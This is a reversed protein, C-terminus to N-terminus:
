SRATARGAGGAAVRRARPRLRRPLPRRGRARVGVARARAARGRSTGGAQRRALQLDVRRGGVVLARAAARDRGAAGGRAAVARARAGAGRAGSRGARARDPEPEALRRREHARGGRDPRATLLRPDLPLGPLRRHARRLGARRAALARDRPGLRADLSADAMVNLDHMEAASSPELLSEDPDCLFAGWRALDGVTSYLGSEGGKGGLELVPERRVSDSYPEVFYPLAAGDGPGWTTRELGLPGLLREQVHERFPMGTIRAVVIGLLAYALNSYHWAAMPPLVQEAEELGAAAGGRRSLELTEWIEGPPERQLGSAHALMRRLTLTGHTAEPLHKSLPDELDLKGADRLQLVSVATFTKTISAVAYQTDPSAEVGQEVDALGVAESWALESAASSPPASAPCGGPASRRSCSAGTASLRPCPSGARAPDARGRARHGRRRRRPAHGRAADDPAHDGLPRRGARGAAGAGRGPGLGLPASTSRSSTRRSRSSTSPCAPRSWGKPWGGRGRTTTPWGSSTTSSRTSARRRGRDGGPADRRRLPAEAAAGRGDAGALRRGARRAPLRPGELPLAHRHRVPTRDGGRPRRARGCREAGARRRPAPAARARARHEVIADLEALPWVRGGSRQAHERGLRDEDRPM